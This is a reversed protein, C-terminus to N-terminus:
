GPVVARGAAVAEDHGGLLARVGDLENALDVYHTGPPCARAIRPGTVPYPGVLNVVVAAGSGAFAAPLADVAGVGRVGAGLPGALAQLRDADRGVLVVEHDAALRAAVARGTRGTAGVVSVRSM